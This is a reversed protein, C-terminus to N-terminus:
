RVVNPLDAIRACACCNHYSTSSCAGVQRSVLHPTNRAAIRSGDHTLPLGAALQLEGFVHARLTFYVCTHPLAAVKVSVFGAHAAPPTCLM